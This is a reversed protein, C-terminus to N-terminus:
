KGKFYYSKNKSQLLFRFLAKMKIEGSWVKQLRAQSMPNAKHIFHTADLYFCIGSSWLGDDYYKRIDNAFKMRLKLDNETLMEKYRAQRYHCGYKNLVRHVTRDHVSSVASYLEIRKSTFNGDQKRASHLARIISIKDRKSLKPKRGGKGKTQKSHVKIKKTAHRWITPLSLQPYTRCLSKNSVTQDQHLYRLYISWEHSVRLTAKKNVM